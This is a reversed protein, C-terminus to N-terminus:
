PNVVFDPPGIGALCSADVQSFPDDLFDLLIDVPCPGGYIVAHGYGPFVFFQGNELYSATSQALKSPHNSYGTGRQDILIIDREFGIPTDLWLEIGDLASGGPGGELYILPIQAGENESKVIAVALDILPSNPDRRNEPVTLYGCEVGEYDFPFPCEAKRYTGKGISPLPSPPIEGGDSSESGAEEGEDLNGDM